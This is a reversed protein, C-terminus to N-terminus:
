TLCYDDIRQIMAESLNRLEIAVRYSDSSFHSVRVVEGYVTFPESDGPLLFRMELFLPYFLRTTTVFSLGGSGVDLMFGHFAVGQHSAYKRVGVIRCTVPTRAPLNIRASRRGQHSRFEDPASLTLTCVNKKVEYQQLDVFAYYVIGRERCSLDIFSVHDLKELPNLGQFELSVTLQTASVHQVTYSHEFCFPLGDKTEGVIILQCVTKPALMGQSLALNWNMTDGEGVMMILIPFYFLATGKRSLPMEPRCGKMENAPRETLSLVRHLSRSVSSSLSYSSLLLMRPNPNYLLNPMRASRSIQRWAEAPM